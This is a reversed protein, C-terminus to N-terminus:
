MMFKYVDVFYKFMADKDIIYTVFGYLMCSGTCLCSRLLLAVSLVAIYMFFSTAVIHLDILIKHAKQSILRELM